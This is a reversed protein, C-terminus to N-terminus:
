TVLGSRIQLIDGLRGIWNLRYYRHAERAAPDLAIIFRGGPLIEAEAIMDIENGGGVRRYVICVVGDAEIQHTTTTYGSFIVPLGPPNKVEVAPRLEANAEGKEKASARPNGVVSFPMGMSVTVPTSSSSKGNVTLEATLDDAVTEPTAVVTFTQSKIGTANKYGVTVDTGNNPTISTPTPSTRLRVIPPDDKENRAKLTDDDWGVSVDFTHLVTTPPTTNQPDDIKIAM